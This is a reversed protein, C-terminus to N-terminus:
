ISKWLIEESGSTFSMYRSLIFFYDSLRNLYHIINQDIAESENLSIVRREARRCVTRALHSFANGPGGGPLIFNTLKPLDVSFLDMKDELQKVHKIEVSPLSFDKSPDTALVSGINFLNSQIEQHFDIIDKPCHENLIGIISNLEDVTGYAEIRLDDKRVRKGGFLSTTGDDGTKTYVKM